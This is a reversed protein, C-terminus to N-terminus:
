YCTPRCPGLSSYTIREQVFHFSQRVVVSYRQGIELDTLELCSTVSYSRCTGVFINLSDVTLPKVNTGEVEIITMQHSDISFTFSPDCSISVLRFRYSIHHLVDFCVRCRDVELKGYDRKFM